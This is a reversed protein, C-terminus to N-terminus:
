VAGSVASGYASCVVPQSKICLKYESIGFSRQLEIMRGSM